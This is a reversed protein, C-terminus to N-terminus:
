LELWPAHRVALRRVQATVLAHIHALGYGASAVFLPARALSRPTQVGQLAVCSVFYHFLVARGRSRIRGVFSPPEVLKTSFLFRALVGVCGLRLLAFFVLQRVASLRSRTTTSRPAAATAAAAVASATGWMRLASAMTRAVSACVGGSTLFGSNVERLLSGDFAWGFAEPPWRRLDMGFVDVSKSRRPLRPLVDCTVVALPVMLAAVVLPLARKYLTAVVGGRHTTYPAGCLECTEARASSLNQLRWTELCREHVFAVSGRCACPTILADADDHGSGGSLCIRCTPSWAPDEGPALPAHPVCSFPPGGM